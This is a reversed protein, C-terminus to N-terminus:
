PVDETIRIFAEEIGSSAERCALLTFRAEALARFADGLVAEPNLALLFHEDDGEREPHISGYPKVARQLARRASDASRRGNRLRLVYRPPEVQSVLQSVSGTFRVSGKSLVTARDAFGRIEDLRQTAWLVATGGAASRAILDRIRRAGEPDLDHTAEDVLLVRADVLLARAVSLRKLMGHSYLGARISGAQVLDVAALLERARARAARLSMGQLRGFFILNEEGSLRLYFTRDGSPVTGLVSPSGPQATAFAVSGETPAILGAIVRLLTTKGAGNPGLLAHIEGAIVDLSVHDLATTAGFRCTVDRAALLNDPRAQVDTPDSPRVVPTV